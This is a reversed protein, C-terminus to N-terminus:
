RVNDKIRILILRGEKFVLERCPERMTWKLWDDGYKAARKVLITGSFWLAPMAGPPKNPNHKISKDYKYGKYTYSSHDKYKPDFKVGTLGEMRKYMENDPFVDGIKDFPLNPIIDSMYLMSDKLYWDLMYRDTADPCTASITRVNGYPSVKDDYLRKYDSFPDLPSRDMLFYTSDNIYIVDSVKSIETFRITKTVRTFVPGPCDDLTQGCLIDHHFVMLLLLVPLIRFFKHKTEM